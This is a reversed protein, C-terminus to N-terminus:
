RASTSPGAVLSEAVVYAWAASISLRMNPRRPNRDPGAAIPSMSNIYTARAEALTPVLYYDPLISESTLLHVAPKVLSFVLLHAASGNIAIVNRHQNIALIQEEIPHEQPHFIRVGAAELRGEFESEGAIKRRDSPLRTRSLYIPQDLIRAGGVVRSAIARAMEAFKPHFGRKLEWAPRPVLLEDVTLPERWDLFRDRTAGLLGLLRWEQPLLGQQPRQLNAVIPMAPDLSALAWCRSLGELLFHGFHRALWGLWLVAGPHSKAKHISQPPGTVQSTGNRVLITAEVPSGTSSFAGGYEIGGERITPSFTAGIHRETVLAEQLVGCSQVRKTVKTLDDFGVFRFGTPSLQTLLSM